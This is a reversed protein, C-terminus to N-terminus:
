VWGMTEGYRIVDGACRLGSTPVKATKIATATKRRGAKIAVPKHAQVEQVCQELLSEM